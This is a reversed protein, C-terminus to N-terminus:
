RATFALSKYRRSFESLIIDSNGVSPAPALELSSNVFHVFLLIQSILGGRAFSGFCTGGKSV